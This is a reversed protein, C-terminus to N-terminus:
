DYGDDDYDCDMDFNSEIAPESQLLYIQGSSDSLDEVVQNYM